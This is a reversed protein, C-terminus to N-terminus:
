LLEDGLGVLLVQELDELLPHLLLELLLQTVAGWLMRLKTSGHVLMLLLLELQALLKRWLLLLAEEQV